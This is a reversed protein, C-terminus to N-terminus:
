DNLARALFGADDKLWKQYGEEGFRYRKEKPMREARALISAYDFGEVAREGFAEWPTANGKARNARRMSVTKNNLSDDLTRSFPLIHEIEVEESLAMRASIQVGSYPCRRDAIDFSLEEWLIMKQIDSARVREGEIQLIGAIDGRLRANRKQNDAQRKSEADRQDKSQKLERAVEVIVESPHGYRKILTNVLLRVQNLGIHVTPNAIRGYRKEECDSPDNTGF